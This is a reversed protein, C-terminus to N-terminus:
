QTSRIKKLYEEYSYQNSHINKWYDSYTDFNKENYVQDSMITFTGTKETTITYSKDREIFLNLPVAPRMGYKLFQYIPHKTDNCNVPTFHITKEVNSSKYFNCIDDKTYPHLVIYGGVPQLVWQQVPIEDSKNMGVLSMSIAPLVVLIYKKMIKKM